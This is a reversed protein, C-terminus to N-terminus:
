LYELGDIAIGIMLSLIVTLIVNFLFNVKRQETGARGADCNWAMCDLEKQNMPITFADADRKISHQFKRLWYNFAQKRQRDWPKGNSTPYKKM